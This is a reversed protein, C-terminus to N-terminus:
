DEIQEKVKEWEPHDKVMSGLVGNIFKSSENTSFTKALEIAENISVRVPVDEKYILEYVAMRLIVRDINSLREITWNKLYQSIRQDILDLHDLIGYIRDKIFELDLEDISNEDLITHIAENPEAKTLDIQYLAQLVKERAVRRKM